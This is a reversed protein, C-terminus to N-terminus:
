ERNSHEIKINSTVLITFLNSLTRSDISTKRDLMVLGNDKEFVPISCKLIGYYIFLITGSKELVIDGEFALHFNPIGYEIIKQVTDDLISEITIEIPFERKSNIGVMNKFLKDRDVDITINM